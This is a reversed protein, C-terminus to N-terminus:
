IWQMRSRIVKGKMKEKRINELEIKKNELEQLLDSDIIKELDNIEKLLSKERNEKEKKKYSSYSITKGRLEMLLTELFLQTDITLQINENEIDEIKDFNYVLAAYQKKVDAIKKKVIDIYNSDYLLSNNFKLLGKCSDFPHIESDM